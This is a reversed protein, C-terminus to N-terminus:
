TCTYIVLGVKVVPSIKYQKLKLIVLELANGAPKQIVFRMIEMSAESFTKSLHVLRHKKLLFM